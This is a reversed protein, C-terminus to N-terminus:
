ELDGASSLRGSGYRRDLPFGIFSVSFLGCGLFRLLYPILILSASPKVRGTELRPVDVREVRGLLDSLVEARFVLRLGVPPEVLLAVEDCEVVFADPLPNM